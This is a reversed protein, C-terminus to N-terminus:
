SVFGRLKAHLAWKGLTILTVENASRHGLVKEWRQQGLARVWAGTETGRSTSHHPHASPVLAPSHEATQGQMGCSLAVRAAEVSVKGGGEWREQELTDWKLGRKPLTRYQMQTFM